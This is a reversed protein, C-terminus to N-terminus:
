YDRELRELRKVERMNGARRAREKQPAYYSKRPSRSLEMYELRQHERMNGAREAREKQSAYESPPSVANARELVELETLHHSKYQLDIEKPNAKRHKSPTGDQLNIEKSNGSPPEIQVLKILVILSLAVAIFVGLAWNKADDSSSSTSCSYDEESEVDVCSPRGGEVGTHVKRDSFLGKEFKSHGVKSGSQTYHDQRYSGVLNTTDNSRGSKNGSDDYHQIYEGGFFGTETNSTGSKSGSDDYHQTYEGGFFGTETNSTGSKSGSDDYHQVYERGLWDTEKKSYGM